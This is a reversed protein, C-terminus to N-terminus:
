PKIQKLTSRLQADKQKLTETYKFNENQVKIRETNISEEKALIAKNQLAQSKAFDMYEKAYKSDITKLENTLSTIVSDKALLTKKHEINQQELQTRRQFELYSIVGCLVVLCAAMFSLLKNLTSQKTWWKIRADTNNDM